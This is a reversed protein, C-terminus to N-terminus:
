RSWVLRAIEDPHEILHDVRAAVLEDRGRLGWACGITTAGANRGTEVDVASDGIMFIGDHGARTRNRVRAAVEVLVAGDPKRVGLSDGGLVAAFHEAIGLREVMPVLFVAPKNSAIALDAGRCAELCDLVGDYLRTTDMCGREYHAFFRARLEELRGADAGPVARALLPLVGHGVGFKVEPGSVEPLGEGALTRNLATALDRWTDALTGDFDFVLLPRESTQLTM